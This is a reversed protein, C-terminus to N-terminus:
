KIKLKIKRARWHRRNPNYQIKRNTKAIVFVPIRRNKKAQKGLHRKRASSKAKSM